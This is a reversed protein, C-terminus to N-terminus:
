LEVLHFVSPPTDQELYSTFCYKSCTCYTEWMCLSVRVQKVVKHGLKNKKNIESISVNPAPTRRKRVGNESKEVSGTNSCWVSVLETPKM